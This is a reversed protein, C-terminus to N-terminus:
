RRSTCSAAAIADRMLPGNSVLFVKPLGQRTLGEAGGQETM